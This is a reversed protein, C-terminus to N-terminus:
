HPSSGKLEDVLKLAQVRQEVRTWFRKYTTENLLCNSKKVIYGNNWFDGVVVQYWPGHYCLRDESDQPRGGIYFEWDDVYSEYTKHTQEMMVAKQYPCCVEEIDEETSLFEGVEGLFWTVDKNRSEYKLLGKKVEGREIQKLVDAYGMGGKLENVVLEEVASGKRNKVRIALDDLMLFFLKERLRENESILKRKKVPWSDENLTATNLINEKKNSTSEGGWKVRDVRNDLGAGYGVLNNDRQEERGSSTISSYLKNADQGRVFPDVFFDHRDTM